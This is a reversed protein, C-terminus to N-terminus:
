PRFIHWLRESAQVTTYGLAAASMGSVIALHLPFHRWFFTLAFILGGIAIAVVLSRGVPGM